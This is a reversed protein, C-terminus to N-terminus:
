QLKWGSQASASFRVSYSGSPQRRFNVASFALVDSGGAGLPRARMVQRSGSNRVLGRKQIAANAVLSNSWSSLHEVNPSGDESRRGIPKAGVDALAERM